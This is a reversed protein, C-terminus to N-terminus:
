ATPILASPNQLDYPMSLTDPEPTMLRKAMERQHKDSARAYTRLILQGNVEISGQRLMM